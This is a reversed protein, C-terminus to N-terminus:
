AVVGRGPPPPAVASRRSATHAHELATVLAAATPYRAAPDKALARAFVPDFATSVVGTESPRPVPERTHAALEDPESARQFPRRGTLLEFAVAGLSYIDSAVTAPEGRAQEPAIYGATGLVTGPITVATTAADTVLAIGFDAVRISCRADLLLNAPKVDRHVIGQAHAADLASAAEDLWRLATEVPPIGDSLERRLDGNPLYEMAIYPVDGLEGVDFITVVHPHGSLKAAANAERLFRVRVGPDGRYPDSLVKLVVPRGLVADQVLYIEAMGGAAIRRPSDFRPPLAPLVVNEM